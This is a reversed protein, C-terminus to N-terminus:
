ERGQIIRSDFSHEDPPTFLFVHIGSTILETSTLVNPSTLTAFTVLEAVWHMFEFGLGENKVRFAAITLYSTFFMSVLPSSNQLSVGPDEGNMAFILTAPSLSAAACHAFGAGAM